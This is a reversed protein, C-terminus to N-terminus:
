TNITGSIGTNIPGYILALTKSLMRVFTKAGNKNDFIQQLFVSLICFMLFMQEKWSMSQGPSDM